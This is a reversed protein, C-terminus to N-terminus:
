QSGCGNKARPFVLSDGKEAKIEGLSVSSGNLAYPVYCTIAPDESDEIEIRIADISSGSAREHLRVDSVLATTRYEGKLAAARLGTHLVQIVNDSLPREERGWTQVHRIEGDAAKVVAFPFFERRNELFHVAAKISEDLVADM